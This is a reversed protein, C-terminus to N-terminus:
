MMITIMRRSLDTYYQFIQVLCELDKVSRERESIVFEVEKKSNIECFICKWQLENAKQSIEKWQDLRSVHKFNDVVYKVYVERLEDYPECSEDLLRECINDLRCTAHLYRFALAKLDDILYQDAACYLSFADM